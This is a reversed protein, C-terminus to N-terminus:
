EMFLRMALCKEREELVPELVAKEDEVLGLGRERRLALQREKANQMLERRRPDGLEDNGRM